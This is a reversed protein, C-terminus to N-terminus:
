ESPKSSKVAARTRSKVAADPPSPASTCQADASTPWPTISTMREVASRSSPRTSTVTSGAVVADTPEAPEADAERMVHIAAPATWSAHRSAISSSRRRPPDSSSASVISM